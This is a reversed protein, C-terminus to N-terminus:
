AVRKVLRCNVISYAGACDDPIDTEKPNDAKTWTVTYALTPYTSDLRDITALIERGGFDIVVKRGIMNINTNM